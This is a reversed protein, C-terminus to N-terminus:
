GHVADNTDDPPAEQLHDRDDEPDDDEVERQQVQRRAVGDVHHRALRAGRVGFVNGLQALLVPEVLRQRNLEAVIQPVDHLEVEAVGVAV